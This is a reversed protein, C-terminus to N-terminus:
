LRVTKRIARPCRGARRLEDAVSTNLPAFSTQSHTLDPLGVLEMGSGRELTAFAIEHGRRAWSLYVAPVFASDGSRRSGSLSKLLEKFQWQKKM